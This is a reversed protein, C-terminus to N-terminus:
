KKIRGKRPMKKKARKKPKAIPPALEQMKSVIEEIWEPKLVIYDGDQRIEIMRNSFYDVTPKEYERLNDVEEYFYDLYEVAIKGVNKIRRNYEAETVKRIRDIPM